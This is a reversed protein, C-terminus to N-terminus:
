SIFLQLVMFLSSEMEGAGGQAHGTEVQFYLNDGKLTTPQSLEPSIPTDPLSQPLAHQLHGRVLGEGKLQQLYQQLCTPRGQGRRM